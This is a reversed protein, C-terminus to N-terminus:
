NPLQNKKDRLRQLLGSQASPGGPRPATEHAGRGRGVGLQRRAVLPSVSHPTPTPTRCFVSRNIIGWCSEFVMLSYTICGMESFIFGPRGPTTDPM